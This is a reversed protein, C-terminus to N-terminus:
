AQYYYVCKKPWKQNMFWSRIFFVEPEFFQNRNLFVMEPEFYFYVFIAALIFVLKELQLSSRIRCFWEEMIQNVRYCLNRRKEAM